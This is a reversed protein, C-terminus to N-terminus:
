QPETSNLPRKSLADEVVAELDAGGGDAMAAEFRAGAVAALAREYRSRERRGFFADQETEIALAAGWLSGSREADGRKAATAALGGLAVMVGYDFALERFVTLAEAYRDEAADLDGEDLLLDGLGSLALATALDDGALRSLEISETLLQAARADNGLENEFEGLDHLVKYRLDDLGHEKATALALDFCDRAEATRGALGSITGLMGLAEGEGAPDDLKRYLAVSRECLKHAEVLEGLLVKIFAANRYAEAATAAGISDARELARDYWTELERLSLTGIADSAYILELALEVDDGALAWEVAARVNDIDPAV